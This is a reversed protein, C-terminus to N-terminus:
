SVLQWTNLSIQEAAHQRHYTVYSIVLLGSFLLPMMSNFVPDGSATYAIFASIFTIGFGAYTWEKVRDAVPALLLMVGILKAIALEIRFYGPFGLHHFGQQLAPQTIYSYAAFTMMIALISTTTWYLINTTKM